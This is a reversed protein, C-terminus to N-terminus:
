PYNSNFKPLNKIKILNFLLNPQFKLMNERRRLGKPYPVEYTSNVGYISVYQHETIIFSADLEVVVLLQTCM